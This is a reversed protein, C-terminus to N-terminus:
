VVMFGLVVTGDLTYGSSNMLVIDFSGAGINDVGCHLYRNTSGTFDVLNAMVISTASVASNTVTFTARGHSTVTALDWTTIKGAHANLTVGTALSTGQTISGKDSVEISNVVADGGVNLNEVIGVGGAVMLAGSTTTTSTTTDEIDVVGGVNLNEAVGVGGAVTLAGNASTTSSKTSLVGVSNTVNAAGMSIAGGTVLAGGLAITGTTTTDFLSTSVTATSGRITDTWVQSTVHLEAGVYVDDAVGLGGAVTLAGSAASTSATASALVVDGSGFVTLKAVGSANQVQFDTFSTDTGMKIITSGTTLTNEITLDGVDNTISGASGSHVIILSDAAGLSLNKADALQLSSSDWTLDASGVFESGSNFQVANTPGNATTISSTFQGWTVATATGFLDTGTIDTVVYGQNDNLNGNEVFVASGSAKAGDIDTALVFKWYGTGTTGEALVYISNEADDTQDKLLIRDGISLTALAVGDITTADLEDDLLFNGDAPTSAYLVSKKWSVGQGAISDVYAKSAADAGATPLSLGGVRTVGTIETGNFTSGEIAVSGSTSTVTLSTTGSHTILAIDKSMTLNDTMSVTSVGSLAGGTLTATSDTLTVAQVIGTATMKGAGDFMFVDSNASNRIRVDTASNVSGIKFLIHKTPATNILWMDGVTETMTLDASGRLIKFSSADGFVAPVNNKLHLGKQSGTNGVTVRGNSSFNMISAGNVDQVDVEALGADDGVKLIVNDAAATSAITLAGTTNTISGVGASGSHTIVLEDGAGVTLNKADGLQLSTGDWTFDSSGTFSTGTAFQVAASGGQAETSGPDQWGLTGVGDVTALTQGSTGLASPLTLAYSASLGALAKISVDFTNGTNQLILSNNSQINLDGNVLGDHQM